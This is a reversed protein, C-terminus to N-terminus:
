SFDGLVSSDNNGLLHVSRHHNMSVLPALNAGETLSFIRINVCAHYVKGLAAKHLFMEESM